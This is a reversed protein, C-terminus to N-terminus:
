HANLPWKHPSRVAAGKWKQFASPAWLGVTKKMEHPALPLLPWGSWVIVGVLWEM